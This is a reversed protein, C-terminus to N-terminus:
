INFLHRASSPNPWARPHGDFWLQNLLAQWQLSFQLRVRQSHFLVELIPATDM